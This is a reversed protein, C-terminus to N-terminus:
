LFLSIMFSTLTFLHDSAGIEIDELSVGLQETIRAGHIFLVRLVDRLDALQVATYRLCNEGRKLGDSVEVVERYM